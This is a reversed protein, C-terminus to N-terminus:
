DGLSDKYDLYEGYFFNQDDYYDKLNYDNSVDYDIERFDEGEMEDDLYINGKKDIFFITEYCEGGGGDEDGWVNFSMLKSFKSGSNYIAIYHTESNSFHEELVLILKDEFYLDGWFGKREEIHWGNWSNTSVSKGNETINICESYLLPNDQFLKLENNATLLSGLDKYSSSFNQCKIDYLSWTKKGTENITLYPLLLRKM